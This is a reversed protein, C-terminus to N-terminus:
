GLAGGAGPIGGSRKKKMVEVEGQAKLLDAQNKLAIETWGFDGITIKNLRLGWEALKEKVKMIEGYPMKELVDYGTKSLDEAKEVGLTSLYSRLTDELLTITAGKVNKVKYVMKYVANPDDKENCQVYALAEKVVASGNKFSVKSKEWFLPYRQEWLSVAERAKMLFPFIFCPGPGFTAYYKGFVEITWRKEEPIRRLSKLLVAAPLGLTFAAIALFAFYNTLLYFVLAILGIAGLGVLSLKAGYILRDVEEKTWKEM